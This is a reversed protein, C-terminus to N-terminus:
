RQNPRIGNGRTKYEGHHKCRFRACRFQFKAAYWKTEDALTRNASEITKAETKVIPHKYYCCVRDLTVKFEEYTSFVDGKKMLNAGPEDMAGWLYYALESNQM